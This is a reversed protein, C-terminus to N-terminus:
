LRSEKFCGLRLSIGRGSELLLLAAIDVSGRLVNAVCHTASPVASTACRPVPVDLGEPANLAVPRGPFLLKALHRTLLAGALM